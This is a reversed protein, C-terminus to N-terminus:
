ARDPLPIKKYINLITELRLWLLADNVREQSGKLYYHQWGEGYLGTVTRPYCSVGFLDTIRQHNIEALTFENKSTQPNYIEVEVIKASQDMLAPAPAVPVGEVLRIPKIRRHVLYRHGGLGQANV